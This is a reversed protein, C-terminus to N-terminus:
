SKPGFKRTQGASINAVHSFIADTPSRRLRQDQDTFFAPQPNSRFTDSSRVSLNVTRTRGRESSQNTTTLVDAKGAWEWAHSQYQWDADFRVHGIHVDADKVSARDETALRLIEATAGSLVFDMRDAAGNVLSKLAPVNLLGGAGSWRRGSGDLFDAPTDLWGHGSWLAAVPDSDLRFLVSRRFTAM